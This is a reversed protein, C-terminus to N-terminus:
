RGNLYNHANRLIARLSAYTLTARADEYNFWDLHSIESDQKIIKQDDSAEALFLITRKLNGNALPYEDSQRFGTVDVHVNLGTEERIEREAAEQESEGEEVHGKPFGWYHSPVSQELLYEITGNHKRYVVAGTSIELTM